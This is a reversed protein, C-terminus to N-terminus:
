PKARRLANQGTTMAENMNQNIQSQIEDLHAQVQQQQQQQLSPGKKVQQKECGTVLLAVALLVALRM